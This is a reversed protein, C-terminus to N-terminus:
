FTETVEFLFKRISVNLQIVVLSGLSSQCFQRLPLIFVVTSTVEDVAIWRLNLMWESSSEYRCFDALMTLLAICAM